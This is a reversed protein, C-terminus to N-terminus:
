SKERTNKPPAVSTSSSSAQEDIASPMGEMLPQYQARASDEERMSEIVQALVKRYRRRAFWMQLDPLLPGGIFFALPLPELYDPVATRWVIMAALLGAGGYAVRSIFDGGRWLNFKNKELEHEAKAAQFYRPLVATLVTEELRQWYPRDDAVEAFQLGAEHLAETAATTLKTETEGNWEAFGERRRELLAVVHETLEALRYRSPYVRRNDVRRLVVPAIEYSTGRHGVGARTEIARSRAPPM